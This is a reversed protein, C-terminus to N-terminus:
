VYQFPKHIISSVYRLAPNYTIVLLVRLQPQNTTSTYKPTLAQTRTINHVRAVEQKLLSLVTLNSNM